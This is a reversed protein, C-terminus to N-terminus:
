NDPQVIEFLHWGWWYGKPDFDLDGAAVYEQLAMKIHDTEAATPAEWIAQASRSRDAIAHIAAAVAKDTERTNGWNEYASFDPKPYNRNMTGKRNPRLRTVRANIAEATTPIPEHDLPRDRVEQRLEVAPWLTLAREHKGLALAFATPTAFDPEQKLNVSQQLNAVFQSIQFAIERLLTLQPEPDAKLVDFTASAWADWDRATGTLPFSIEVFDPENAKGIMGSLKKAAERVYAYVKSVGVTNIANSMAGDLDGCDFDNSM